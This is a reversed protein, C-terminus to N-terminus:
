KKLKFIFQIEETAFQIYTNYGIFQDVFFKLGLVLINNLFTMPTRYIMPSFSDDKPLGLNDVRTEHIVEKWQELNQNSTTYHVNEVWLRNFRNDAQTTKSNGIISGIAHKAANQIIWVFYNPALLNDTFVHVIDGITLNSNIGSNFGTFGIISAPSFGVGIVGSTVYYTGAVPPVFSLAQKYGGMRDFEGFLYVPYSVQLAAPVLSKDVVNGLVDTYVRKVRMFISHDTFLKDKKVEKVLAVNQKTITTM